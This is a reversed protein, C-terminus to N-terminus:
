QKKCYISMPGPLPPTLMLSHLVTPVQHSFPSTESLRQYSAICSFIVRGRQLADCSRTSFSAGDRLRKVQLSRFSCCRAYPSCIVQRKMQLVLVWPLLIGYWPLQALTLSPCNHPCGHLCHTSNRSTGIGLVARGSWLLEPEYLVCRLTVIQLM